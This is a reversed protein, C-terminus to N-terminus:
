AFAVQFVPRNYQLIFVARVCAKLRLYTICFSIPQLCAVYLYYLLFILKQHEINNNGTQPVAHIGHDRVVQNRAGHTQRARTRNGPRARDVLGEIWTRYIPLLSYVYPHGNNFIAFHLDHQGETHRTHLVPRHPKCICVTVLTVNVIINVNPVITLM